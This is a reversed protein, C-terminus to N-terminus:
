KCIFLDGASDRAISGSTTCAAGDTANTSTIVLNGSAIVFDGAASLYALVTGAFNKWQQLYATQGSAGSVTMAVTGAVGNAVTADGSVSLSSVPSTTGIGVNGANNVYIRSTNATRFDLGYNQNNLITFGTWGTTDYLDLTTYSSATGNGYGQGKGIIGDNAIDGAISLKHTPSVTGIGVNGGMYTMTGTLGSGDNVVKLNNTGSISGIDLLVVGGGNSRSAILGGGSYGIASSNVGGIVLQTGLYKLTEGDGNGAPRISRTGSLGIDGAIQMQGNPGFTSTGIGVNTGDDYILSNGLTTGASFKPIYNTTGSGGVGSDTQWSPAVGAGNSKM